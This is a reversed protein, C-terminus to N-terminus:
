EKPTRKELIKRKTESDKKDKEETKKEETVKTDEEKSDKTEKSDKKDKEEAKKVAEEKSEQKKKEREKTTEKKKKLLEDIKKLFQDIDKINSVKLNLEKIKNLIDLRKKLGVNSALVIINNEKVKNLDKLNHVLIEKLGDRNLGRVEKPSSYGVSPAKRYSRLKLRMKSHIGKSRRWNQKLKKLKHADQRLFNPKKSKLRKRIELLKKM